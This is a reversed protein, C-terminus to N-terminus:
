IGFSRSGWRTLQVAFMLSDLIGSGLISDLILNCPILSCDNEIGSWGIRVNTCHSFLRGSTLELVDAATFAGIDTYLVNAEKDKRHVDVEKVTCYPNPM